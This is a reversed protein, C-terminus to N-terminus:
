AAARSHQRLWVSLPTARGVPPIRLTRPDAACDACVTRLCVRPAATM